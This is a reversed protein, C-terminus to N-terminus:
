KGIGWYAKAEAELKSLRTYYDPFENLHALAIKGTLIPDDGTVNTAPDRRGHELETDLGIRFQEVDFKSNNWDIGLKEGIKLAEERTFRQKPKEVTKTERCAKCTTYQKQPSKMKTTMELLNKGTAMCYYCMPLPAMELIPCIWQYM